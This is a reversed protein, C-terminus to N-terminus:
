LMPGQDAEPLHVLQAPISRGTKITTFSKKDDHGLQFLSSHKDGFFM